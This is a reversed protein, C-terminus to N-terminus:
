FSAIMIEVFTLKEFGGFFPSADALLPDIGGRHRRRSRTLPDHAGLFPGLHDPLTPKPSKQELHRRLVPHPCTKSRKRPQNTSPIPKIPLCRRPVAFLSRKLYSSYLIREIYHRVESIIASETIIDDGYEILAERHIRFYTM